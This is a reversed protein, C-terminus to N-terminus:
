VLLFLVRWVIDIFCGFGWNGVIDVGDTGLTSCDVITLRLCMFLLCLSINLVVDGACLVLDRVCVASVGGSILVLDRVLHVLISFLVCMPFADFTSVVRARVSFSTWWAKATMFVSM